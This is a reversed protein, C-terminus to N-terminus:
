LNCLLMSWPTMSTSYIVVTKKCLSCHRAPRLLALGGRESIGHNVILKGKCLIRWSFLFSLSLLVRKLRQSICGGGKGFIVAGIKVTRVRRESLAWKWELWNRSMDLAKQVRNVSPGLGQRVWCVWLQRIRQVSMKLGWVTGLDQYFKICPQNIELAFGGGCSFGDTYHSFLGSPTPDFM